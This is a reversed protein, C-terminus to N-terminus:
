IPSPRPFGIVMLIESFIYLKKMFKRRRHFGIKWLM